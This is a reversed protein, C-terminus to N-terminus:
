DGNMQAEVQRVRSAIFAVVEDIDLQTSDVLEADDARALPAVPRGSDRRDRERVQTEVNSLTTSPDRTLLEEYRRVARAEVSATLFFKAQADPFVVTGIDRGEVVVRGNRGVDRQVQLLASRVGPITSVKSALSSAEPTRIAQSVDEGDLLVRQGAPDEGDFAIAQREAIDAALQAIAQPDDLLNKRRASLGVCRYLAGTDLLTYGLAAAVRRSVTSKGAGAPGDIAVVPYRRPPLSTM